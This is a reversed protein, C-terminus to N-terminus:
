VGAAIAAEIAIARAETDLGVQRLSSIARSLLIPNAGAPGGQGLACLSLLVTEGIRGNGAADGLNFWLAPDPAGGGAGTQGILTWSGGIPEGIGEFVAFLRNVPDASSGGAAQAQRWKQVAGADWFLPQGVGAIRAYVALASAAAAAEPDTKAKGEAVQLWANAQEFHGSAYLARGADAAFWALEPSPQLPLLYLLNTRVALIYGGQRRARDLAAQLVHARGAPQEAVGAAQFLLARGGPGPDRSSVEVANGIDGPAYNVSAYAAQLKDIPLAGAAAAQEAAALRIAPDVANDQAVTALVAPDSAQAADPPLPLGAAQLMALDLPSPNPLSALTASKDGGMAQALKFFADDSRNQDHLIEIGLAAQDAKGSRLQCFVQTEQWDADASAAKRTDDVTKCAGDVDGALLQANIRLRASTPDVGSAPQLALLAAADSFLGMAALRDARVGFLDVTAKGAPAEANTLLLRRALDRMAPSSPAAPLQPLLREVLARDTGKWMDLPFGGGGEELTGGYDPTVSGLTGVEVGSATTSAASSLPAPQPLTQPSVGGTNVSTTGGTPATGATQARAPLAALLLM